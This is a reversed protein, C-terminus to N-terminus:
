KFVKMLDNETYEKRCKPCSHMALACVYCYLHGCLKIVTNTEETLCVACVDDDSNNNNNPRDKGCKFCAIRSGFNIENCSCVWDGAKITVQQEKKNLATPKEKGCKRCNNRSAFVLEGCSCTWDNKKKEPNQKISKSRFCDCERCKDNSAFNNYGCDICKWDNKKNDILPM